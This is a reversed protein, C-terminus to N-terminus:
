AHCPVELTYAWPSVLKALGERDETALDDVAFTSRPRQNEMPGNILDEIRVTPTDEPILKHWQIYYQASLHLCDETDLKEAICTYNPISHECDLTLEIYRSIYDRYLKHDPHTWFEIGMLSNIVKMPHRVLRIVNEFEILNKIHPAALWSSESHSAEFEDSEFEYNPMFNACEPHTVASENGPLKTNCPNFINEHAIGLLKAYSKTGSRQCGTIIM